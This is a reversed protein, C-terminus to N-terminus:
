PLLEPPEVLVYLTSSIYCGLAGVQFLALLPTVCKEDELWLFELAAVPNAMRFNELAPERIQIRFRVGPHRSADPLFLICHITGHTQRYGTASPTPM